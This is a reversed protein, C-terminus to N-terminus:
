IKPEKEKQVTTQVESILELTDVDNPDNYRAEYVEELTGYGPRLDVIDQGFIEDYERQLRLRESVSVGEWVFSNNSASHELKPQTEWILYKLTALTNRLYETLVSPDMDRSPKINKGINIIFDHGYQDIAVPIIDVGTEIAMRSAGKYIKGVPLNPTVNWAGEPFLILSGGNKLLEIARKYAIHRDEKDKLELDISGNVYLVKSFLPDKYVPAPDGYFVYAHDKIMEAIRLVDNGGSHTCAYIVPRKTTGQEREDGLVIIRDKSILRDIKLLTEIFPHLIERMKIGKLPIGQDFEYKRLQAYYRALEDMAMSKKERLSKYEFTKM